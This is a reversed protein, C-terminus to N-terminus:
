LPPESTDLSQVAMTWSRSRSRILLVASAPDVARHANRLPRVSEARREAAFAGKTRRASSTRRLMLDIETGSNRWSIPLSPTVM